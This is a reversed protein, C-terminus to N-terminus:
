SIKVEITIISSGDLAIEPVDSATDLCDTIAEGLNYRFSDDVKVDRNIYLDHRKKGDITPMVSVNLIKPPPPPVFPELSAELAELATIEGPDSWEGSSNRVLLVHEDLEHLEAVHQFATRLDNALAIDIVSMADTDIDKELVTVRVVHEGRYEDRDAVVYYTESM